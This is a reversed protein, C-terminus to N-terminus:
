VLDEWVTAARTGASHRRHCIPDKLQTEGKRPSCRDLSIEVRIDLTCPKPIGDPGHCLQLAPRMCAQVPNGTTTHRSRWPVLLFRKSPIGKREPKPGKKPTM